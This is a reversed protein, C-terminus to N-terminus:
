PLYYDVTLTALQIQSRAGASDRMYVRVTVADARAASNIEPLAVADTLYSGGSNCSLPSGASGHAALLEANMYTEIYYCTTGAADLSRYSIHFSAGSVVSGAAVYAPFSFGLYRLTSFSTSWGSASILSHDRIIITVTAASSTTWGDTAVYTFADTGTYGPFPRYAFSGDQNVTLTGHAPGSVPRPSGVTVAQSEPDSDNALVGAAGVTLTTDAVMEYSDSAASPATNTVSVATSTTPAKAGDTLDTATFTTSGGSQPRVNFTITGAVLPAPMPLMASTDSSAISVTETSPVINWHADVANVTVAFSTNATQQSPTGSKGTSSGPQATEGPLLIQLKVFPGPILTIPASLGTKLDGTVSVTWSGATNLTAGSAFTKAGHDSSVFTYTSPALTANPDSSSITITGTYGGIRNGLEDVATVTVDFPAGATATLLASVVFHDLAVATKEGVAFDGFDAIGTATTSTSTRTPTTLSHWAGLSYRAVAFASPDAGADLDGAGFTFTASFTSFTVGANTLTWYRNADAAPVITSSDLAPHDGMASSATIYGAATVSNFVLAVPAYQGPDGIEFTVSPAGTTVYKRLNGVVHGSTRSVSGSASVLLVRTGTTINGSTLTLTGSVSTDNALSIGSSNNITLGYFGIPYLGGVTQGSSGSLTVTGTGTVLAGPAANNTLDGNIDFLTATPSVLIGSTITLAGMTMSAGSLDFTGAGLKNLAGTGAGTGAYGLTTSSAVDFTGGPDSLTIGRNPSLVFTATTVLTGGAFTLQNATPTAPAAGLATDAAIALVGASITTAGTYTNTASLTLTGAGDKTLTGTTTGIVSNMLTNGSGGVTLPRAAGTMGGSLTLTGADSNIRAGGAGLVIAGSWTNDNALNRIAGASSVGTGILSTIPEAIVLGSGDIDVEAGTAVSLGGATTGLASANQIRLM